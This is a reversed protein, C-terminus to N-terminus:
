TREAEGDIVHQVDSDQCACAVVSSSGYPICAREAGESPQWTLPLLPVGVRYRCDYLVCWRCGYLVSCRCLMRPAGSRSVLVIRCSLRRVDSDLRLRMEVLRSGRRARTM